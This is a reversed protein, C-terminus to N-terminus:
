PRRDMAAWIARIADRQQASTNAGAGSLKLAADFQKKDAYSASWDSYLINLGTKHNLIIDNDYIASDSVIALNKLENVKPLGRGGYNKELPKERSGYTAAVGSGPSLWKWSTAESAAASTVVDKCPRFAYGARCQTPTAPVPYCWRNTPTDYSFEARGGVNPCYFIRGDRHKQEQVMLGLGTHYAGDFLFYNYAWSDSRRGIPVYLKNGNAYINLMQGISRLNSLCNARRASERAKGLTPLLIGILVAIIGIVVLLEVLTFARGRRAPAAPTARPSPASTFFRM